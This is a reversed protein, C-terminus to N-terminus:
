NTLEENEDQTIKLQSKIEERETRHREQELKFESQLNNTTEEYNAITSMCANLELETETTIREKQAKVQDYEFRM